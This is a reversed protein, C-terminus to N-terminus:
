RGRMARQLRALQSALDGADWSLTAIGYGRLQAIALEREVLLVRVHDADTGKAAALMGSIPLTDIAIVLHGRLACSIAAQRSAATALPSCWIVIQGPRLGWLNVPTIRYRRDTLLALQHRIHQLQRHGAGVRVFRRPLSATMLGVRDGQALHAGAIGAAAAVTHDLSSAQAIRRETERENRRAAVTHPAVVAGAQELTDILARRWAQWRHRQFHLRQPALVMSRDLCIMIDAEADSLTRRTYLQQHRAYARWVIDRRRDGPTFQRVDVLDNGQGPRRAVHAGAWGAALPPLPLATMQPVQPLILEQLGTGRRVPGTLYLGDPGAGLVDSRTISTMGWAKTRFEGAIIVASTDPHPAAVAIMTRVIGYTSSPQAVVVFGVQNIRHVVTRTSARYDGFTDRSVTTTTHPTRNGLLGRTALLSAAWLLVLPAILLVLDARGAALGTGGSLVAIGPVRYWAATRQWSGVRQALRAM